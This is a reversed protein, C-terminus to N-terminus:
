LKWKNSKFTGSLPPDRSAWGSQSAAWQEAAHIYYSHIFLYM